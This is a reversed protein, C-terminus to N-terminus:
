TPKSPAEGARITSTFPPPRQGLRSRREGRLLLDPLDHLRPAPGPLVGARLLHDAPPPPDVHGDPVGAQPRARGARREQGGVPGLATALRHIHTDVPFAPVGFAQAMVVSATKHGVGALSELFEWDPRVEGGAEVIQNAAVWLNRRRPRRWVSRASSSSSGTPDSSSWRSRRTPSPSCSRRSRTSRRTPPRRRCPSPSWCRTPTPTTSRSRHSRTSTTSSRASASSRRRGGCGCSPLPPRRRGVDEVRTLDHGVQRTVVERSAAM